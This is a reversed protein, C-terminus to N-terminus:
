GARCPSSSPASTIAKSTLFSKKFTGSIYYQDESVIVFLSLHRMQGCFIDGVVPDFFGALRLVTPFSDPRAPGSLNYAPQWHPPSDSVLAAVPPFYLEDPFAINKQCSTSFWALKSQMKKVLAYNLRTYHANVKIQIIQENVLVFVTKADSSEM